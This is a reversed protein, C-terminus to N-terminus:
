EAEDFCQCDDDQHQCGPEHEGFETITRRCLEAIAAIDLVVLEHVPDFDYPM